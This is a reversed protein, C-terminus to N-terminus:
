GGLVEHLAAAAGAAERDLDLGLDHRVTLTALSRGRWVTLHQYLTVVDPGRTHDEVAFWDVAAAPGSPDAAAFVHLPDPRAEPRVPRAEIWGAVVDRDAWNARWTAELAEAGREQWVARHADAGTAGDDAFRELRLVALVQGERRRWARGGDLAVLRREARVATLADAAPGSAHPEVEEVNNLMPVAVWGRGLAGKPLALAELDAQAAADWWPQEGAPGSRRQSGPAAGARSRRLRM